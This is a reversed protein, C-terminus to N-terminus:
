DGSCRPPWEVKEHIAWGEVPPAGPCAFRGRSRWKCEDIELLRAPLLDRVGPIVSLATSGLPGSRLVLSRDLSLRAGDSFEIAGDDLRVAPALLGNRYVIQRSFGGRWDIWVIWHSPTAFHGWRLTDLPLRWPALTMRLHEAYGFGVRDRLRAHARPMLCHWEVFGESSAFVTERLEPSDHQWEADVHLARSQWRLTGLDIRPASQPRLSHRTRVKDATSDLLSSYHLRIPGWHATGTYAISVDGTASVCDLYWKSLEFAPM